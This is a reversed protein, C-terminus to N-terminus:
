IKDETKTKYKTRQVESKEYRNNNGTTYFFPLRTLKVALTFSNASFDFFSEVLVQGLRNLLYKGEGQLRDCYITHREECDLYDFIEIISNAIGILSIGLLNVVVKSNHYLFFYTRGWSCQLRDDREAIKIEFVTNAVCSIGRDKLSISQM